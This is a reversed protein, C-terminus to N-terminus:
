DDEKGGEGTGLDGGNAGTGDDIGVGTGGGPVLHNQDLLAADRRNAAVHSDRHAGAHDVERGRRDRGPQDIGVGVEADLHLLTAIGAVVVEGGQPIGVGVTGDLSHDVGPGHELGAEGRHAVDAVLAVEGADLHAPRIM